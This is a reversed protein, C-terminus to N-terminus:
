SWRVQDVVALQDRVGTAGLEAGSEGDDDSNRSCVSSKAVPTRPRPDSFKSCDIRRV